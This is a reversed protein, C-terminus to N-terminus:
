KLSIICELFRRCSAERDNGIMGKFRRKGNVVSWISDDPDGMFSLKIRMEGRDWIFHVEYPEEPAYIFETDDFLSWDDGLQEKMVECFMGAQEALGITEMDVIYSRMVEAPNVAM